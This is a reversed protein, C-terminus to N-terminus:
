TGAQITLAKAKEVKTGDKTELLLKWDGVAANPPITFVCTLNDAEPTVKSATLSAVDNKGATSPGALTAVSVDALGSGGITLTQDSQAAPQKISAPSVPGIVPPIDAISDDPAGANRMASVATQVSKAGFYFSAISVVLTGVTTLIEHAFDEAPKNLTIQRVVTYTPPSAPPVDPIQSIIDGQPMLALQSATVGKLTASAPTSLKGFLFLASIVFILILSLAIVARITGEPLGLAQTRDSLNLASFTAAVLALIAILALVGALALVTLSTADGGNQFRPCLLLYPIYVAAGLGIISMALAFWYSPALKTKM